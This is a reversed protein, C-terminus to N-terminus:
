KSAPLYPHEECQLCVSM